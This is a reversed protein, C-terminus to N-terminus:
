VGGFAARQWPLQQPIALCFFCAERRGWTIKDLWPQTLAWTGWLTESAHFEFSVCHQAHTSMSLTGDKQIGGLSPVAHLELFGM